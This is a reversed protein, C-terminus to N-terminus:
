YFDDKDYDSEEDDKHKEYYKKLRKEELKIKKQENEEAYIKKMKNNLEDIGENLKLKNLPNSWISDVSRQPTNNFVIPKVLDPFENEKKIELEKLKKQLNDKKIQSMYKGSNLTKKIEEIQLVIPKDPVKIEEEKKSFKPKNNKKNFFKEFANENNETTKNRWSM